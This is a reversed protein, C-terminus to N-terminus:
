VKGMGAALVADNRAAREALFFILLTPVLLIFTVVAANPFIILRGGLYAWLKITLTQVEPAGVIFTKEFEEFSGIFSLLGGALFGPWALPVLLHRAVSMPTAGLTRAAHIVESPIAELAAALIRIMLPLTGITQALIVGPISYALGARLFLIGVGIGVILGPVILPALIFLEIAKRGRFPIKALAYATPLALVATLATVAVSIGLSTVISEVLGPDALMREWHHTSISPPVIAPAFWGTRPDVLSWAVAVLMPVFLTLGLAAYLGVSLWWRASGFSPRALQAVAAMGSM